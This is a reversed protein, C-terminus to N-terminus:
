GQMKLKKIKVKTQCLLYLLIHIKEPVLYTSYSFIFGKCQDTKAVYWVEVLPQAIPCCSFWQIWITETTILTYNYINVSYSIELRIQHLTYWCIHDLQRLLLWSDLCNIVWSGDQTDKNPILLEHLLCAVYLYLM